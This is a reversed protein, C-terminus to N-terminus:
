FVARWVARGGLVVAAVLGVKFAKRLWYIIPGGAIRQQLSVEYLALHGVAQELSDTAKTFRPNGQANWSANDRGIALIEHPRLEVLAEMLPQRILDERFAPDPIRRVCSIAKEIATYAAWVHKAATDDTPAGPFERDFRHVGTARKIPLLGALPRLAVIAARTKFYAERAAALAAQVTLLLKEDEPADEVVPCGWSRYSYPLQNVQTYEVKQLGKRYSRKSTTTLNWTAQPHSEYAQRAELLREPCDEGGSVADCYAAVDASPVSQGLAGLFGM